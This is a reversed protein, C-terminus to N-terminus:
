IDTTFEIEGELHEGRVYSLIDEIMQLFAIFAMLGFGIMMILFFPWLPIVLSYTSLNKDIAYELTPWGTIAISGCFVMISVSVVINMLAVLKFYGRAHIAAVAANMVLHSRRIQTVCFYFSVASVMGVILADQGWEFVVGFIYRRVIEFMAFLTTVLLTISATWGLILEILNKIRRSFELFIEMQDMPDKYSISSNPLPQQCLM